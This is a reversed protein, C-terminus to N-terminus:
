GPRWASAGAGLAGSVIGFLQPAFAQLSARLVTRVSEARGWMTSVM